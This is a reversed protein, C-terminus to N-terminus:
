ELILTTFRGEVVFVTLAGNLWVESSIIIAKRGSRRYRALPGPARGAAASIEERLDNRQVTYRPSVKRNVNGNTPAVYLPLHNDGSPNRCLFGYNRGNLQTSM